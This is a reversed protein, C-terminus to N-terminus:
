ARPSAGAAIVALLVSAIGMVYVAILSVNIGSVVKAAGDAALMSGDYAGRIAYAFLFGATVCLAVLSALRVDKGRWALRACLLALLSNTCLQWVEHLRAHGPWAPNFVHTDNIELVPLLVGFVALCPLLLLLRMGM